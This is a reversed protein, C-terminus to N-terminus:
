VQANWGFIFDRIGGPSSVVEIRTGHYRLVESVLYLGIGFGTVRQDKVRYFWQFLRQQDEESIGM